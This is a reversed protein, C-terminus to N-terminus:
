KMGFLNSDILNGKMRDRKYFHGISFSIIPIIITKYHSSLYSRILITM